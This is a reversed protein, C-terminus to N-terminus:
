QDNSKSVTKVKEELQDLLGIWEDIDEVRVEGPNVHDIDDIFKELRTKIQDITQNENM